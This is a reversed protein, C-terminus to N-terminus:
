ICFAMVLLSRIARTAEHISDYKECRLSSFRVKGGKFLSCFEHKEGKNQFTDNAVLSFRRNRRIHKCCEGETRTVFKVNASISKEAGTVFYVIVKCIRAFGSDAWRKCDDFIRRFEVERLLKLIVINVYFGNADSPPASCFRWLWWPLIGLM